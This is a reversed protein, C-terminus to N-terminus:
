TCTEWHTITCKRCLERVDFAKLHAGVKRIVEGERGRQSKVTSLKGERDRSRFNTLFTLPELSSRRFLLCIM